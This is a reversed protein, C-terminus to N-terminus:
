WWLIRQLVAHPETDRYLYFTLADGAYLTWQDTSELAELVEKETWIEGERFIRLRIEYDPDVQGLANVLEEYGEKTLRQTREAEDFFSETQQTAYCLRYDSSFYYAFVLVTGLLIAMLCVTDITEYLNKMM